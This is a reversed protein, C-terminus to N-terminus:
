FGDIFECFGESNSQLDDGKIECEGGRVQGALVRVVEEIEQSGVIITGTHRQATM